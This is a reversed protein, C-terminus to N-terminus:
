TRLSLRGEQRALREMFRLMWAALLSFGVALIGLGGVEWAVSVLGPHIRPFMIQRLGDLALTLPILSAVASVWPGLARVPFYFGTVLYVPEQLLQVTHWAERGWLLFLSSFVMGLGYLAILGLIFITLFLPWSSVHLPARFILAGTVVVIVARLAAAVFGGLAMGLLIPMLGCPAMMYLEMNGQRKEWYFQAAMLWMVNLWFAM